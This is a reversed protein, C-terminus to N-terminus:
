DATLARYPKPFFSWHDDCWVLGDYSIGSSNGSSHYQWASWVRAPLLLHAVSRYGGPFPRSMANDDALAGAPAFHIRIRTRGVPHRFGIGADWMREYRQRAPEATERVFVAAYDAQRPRLERLAAGTRDMAVTRLIPELQAYLAAMSIGARLHSGVADHEEATADQATALSPDAGPDGQRQLATEFVAYSTRRLARVTRNEQETLCRDASRAVQEVAKIQTYIDFLPGTGHLRGRQREVEMLFGDRDLADMEQRSPGLLLERPLGPRETWGGTRADFRFAIVRGDATRVVKAPVNGHRFFAPLTENRFMDDSTM